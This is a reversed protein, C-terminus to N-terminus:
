IRLDIEEKATPAWGRSLFAEAFPPLGRDKKSAAETQQPDIADFGTSQSDSWGDDPSGESKTSDSTSKISGSNNSSTSTSDNSAPAATMTGELLWDIGTFISDDFPLICELLDGNSQSPPEIQEAKGFATFASTTPEEPLLADKQSSCLLSSFDGQANQTGSNWSSSLFGNQFYDWDPMLSNEGNPDSSAWNYAFQCSAGNMNNVSHGVPTQAAEVSKNEVSLSKQESGDNKASKEPPPETPTGQRPQQPPKNMNESSNPPGKGNSLHTSGPDGPASPLHPQPAQEQQRQPRPQQEICPWGHKQKKTICSFPHQQQGNRHDWEYHRPPAHYGNQFACKAAQKSEGGYRNHVIVPNQPAAAQQNMSYSMKAIDIYDENHVVTNM